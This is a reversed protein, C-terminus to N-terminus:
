AESEVPKRYYSEPIPKGNRDHYQGPKLPFGDVRMDRWDYGDAKLAEIVHPHQGAGQYKGLQNGANDFVAAMGNPFFIIQTPIGDM